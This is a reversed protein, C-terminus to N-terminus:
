NALQGFARELAAIYDRLNKIGQTLQTRKAVIGRDANADSTLSSLRETLSDLKSQAEALAKRNAARLSEPTPKVYEPRGAEKATRFHDGQKVLVPGLEGHETITIRTNVLDEAATSGATAYLQKLDDENLRFGPDDGKVIPMTTCNCGGHLPLLEEISYVRQSAVVCLGCTGDKSLEPHIVRRYGTVKPAVEYIRQAEDREALMVDQEAAARIREEAIARAEEVTGGQSLRYVFQAAPRSYVDLASAGSRAYPDRLVPLSEPLASVERLVGQLYSRTLRRTQSTASSVLVASRAALGAVADPDRSDGFDGWLGLMLKVLQVIINDRQKAHRDSLASLRSVDVAM